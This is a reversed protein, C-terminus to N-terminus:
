ASACGSWRWGCNGNSAMPSEGNSGARGGSNRWSPRATTPCACRSTPSSRPTSASAASSTPSSRATYLPLRRDRGPGELPPRHHHLGRRESKGIVGEEVCSAQCGGGLPAPRSAGYGCLGVVSKADLIAEDTVARVLGNTWHLARFGRPSTSRGTSRSQAPSPTPRSSGATSSRTAGTSWPATSVPPRKWRM